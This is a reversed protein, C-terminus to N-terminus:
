TKNAEDCNRRLSFKISDDTGSFLLYWIATVIIPHRGSFEALLGIGSLFIDAPNM